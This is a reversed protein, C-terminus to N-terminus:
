CADATTRPSRWWKESVEVHLICIYRHVMLCPNTMFIQIDSTTGTFTLLSNRHRCFSYKSVGSDKKKKKEAAIGVQEHIVFRRSLTDIVGIGLVVLQRTPNPMAATKTVQM